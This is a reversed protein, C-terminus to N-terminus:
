SPMVNEKDYDWSPTNYTHLNTSLV